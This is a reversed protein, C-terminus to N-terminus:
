SITRTLDGEVERLRSALQQVIPLPLLVPPLSELPSDESAQGILELVAVPMKLSPHVRAGVVVPMLDPLAPPPLVGRAIQQDLARKVMVLLGKMLSEANFYSLKLVIPEGGGDTFTIELADGGDVVETTQVVYM